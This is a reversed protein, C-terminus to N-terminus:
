PLYKLKKKIELHYSLSHHDGMSSRVIRWHTHTSQRSWQPSHSSPLVVSHPSSIYFLIRELIFINNEKIVTKMLGLILAVKNKNSNNSNELLNIRLWHIKHMVSMNNLQAITNIISKTVWTGFMEDSKWWQSM